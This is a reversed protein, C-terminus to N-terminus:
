GRGNFKEIDSETLLDFTNEYEEPIFVFFKYESHYIIDFDIDVTTGEHDIRITRSSIKPM